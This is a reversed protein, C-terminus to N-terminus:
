RKFTLKPRAPARAASRTPTDREPQRQVRREVIFRELADQPVRYGKGNAGTSVVALLGKKILSRVNSPSCNLEVAAQSITFM